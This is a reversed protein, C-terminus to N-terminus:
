NEEEIGKVGASNTWRLPTKTQCTEKRTIANVCHVIFIAERKKKTHTWFHSSVDFIEDIVCLLLVLWKFISNQAPAIFIIVCFAVLFSTQFFLLLRFLFLFQHNNIRHNQTEWSIYTHFPSFVFCVCVKKERNIIITRWSCDSSQRWKLIAEFENLWVFARCGVYLCMECPTGNAIRLLYVVCSYLSFRTARSLSTSDVSQRKDWTM